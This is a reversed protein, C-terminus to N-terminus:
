EGSRRRADRTDFFQAAHSSQLSVPTEEAGCCWIKHLAAFSRV